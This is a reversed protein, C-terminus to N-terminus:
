ERGCIVAVLLWVRFVIVLQDSIGLQNLVLSTSVGGSGSGVFELSLMESPGDVTSFSVTDSSSDDGRDHPHEM